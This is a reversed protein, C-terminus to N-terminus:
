AFFWGSPKESEKKLDEKIKDELKKIKGEQTLIIKSLENIQGQQDEFLQRIADIPRIPRSSRQPMINSLKNIKKQCFDILNQSTDSLLQNLSNKVSSLKMALHEGVIICPIRNLGNGINRLIYMTFGTIADGIRYKM